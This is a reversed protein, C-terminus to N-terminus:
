GIKAVMATSTSGAPATVIVTVSPVGTGCAQGLGGHDSEVSATSPSWPATALYGDEGTVALDAVDAVVSTSSFRVM